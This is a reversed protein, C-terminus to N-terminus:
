PKIRLFIVGILLRFVIICLIGAQVGAKSKATAVCLVSIAFFLILKPAFLRVTPEYVLALAIGM